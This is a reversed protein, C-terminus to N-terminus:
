NIVASAHNAVAVPTYVGQLRQVYSTVILKDSEELPLLAVLQDAPAAVVNDIMPGLEPNDKVLGQVGVAFDEVPVNARAAQILDNVLQDVIGAAAAFTDVNASQETADVQSPQTDESITKDTPAAVNDLVSPAQYIPIQNTQMTPARLAAVILPVSEKIACILERVIDPWTSGTANTESDDPVLGLSKLVQVAGGLEQLQEAFTKQPPRMRELEQMLGLIGTYTKLETKASQLDQSAIALSTQQPAHEVAETEDDLPAAVEFLSVQEIRGIGAKRFEIRYAGHGFRRKILDELDDTVAINSLFQKACTLDNRNDEYFNPLRSIRAMMQGHETDSFRAMIDRVGSSSDPELVSVDSIAAHEKESSKPRESTDRTLSVGGSKELDNTEFHELQQIDKEEKM